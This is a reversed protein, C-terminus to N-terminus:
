SFVFCASQQYFDIPLKFYMKKIQAFEPDHSMLYLDPQMKYMASISVGFSPNSCPTRTKSVVYQFM